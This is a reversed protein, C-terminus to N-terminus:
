TSQDQIVKLQCAELDDFNCDFIAFIIVSVIVPDVSTSYSVVRASDIPMQCWSSQSQIVKFRRLDLDPIEAAFIEFIPSLYLRGKFSTLYCVVLPSEITVIFKSGPHGQVTSTQIIPKSVTHRTGYFMYM